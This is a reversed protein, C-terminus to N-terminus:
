INAHSSNLRTSKRDRGEAFGLAHAAVAVAVDDNQLRVILAHVDERRTAYQESLPAFAASIGALESQRARHRHIRLAIHKHTFVAHEVSHLAERRAPLLEQAAEAM